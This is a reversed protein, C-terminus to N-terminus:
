ALGCFDLTFKDLLKAKINYKVFEKHKVLFVLIDAKKLAADYSVLCPNILATNPEVALVDYGIQKLSLAIDLAPSHRLDDIDPKFTLGFCAVKPIRNLKAGYDAVAVKIKQLVWDKKNENVERATRIIKSNDPDRDIIFLAGCYHLPRGCWSRAAIDVRPHRNALKILELM